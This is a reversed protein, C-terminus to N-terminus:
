ENPFFITLFKSAYARCAHDGCYKYCYIFLYFNLVFSLFLLFHLFHISIFSFYFFHLRSGKSLTTRYLYIGGHIANKDHTNSQRHIPWRHLQIMMWITSIKTTWWQLALAQIPRIKAVGDSWNPTGHPHPVADNTRKRHPHSYLKARHAMIVTQHPRRVPCNHRNIM